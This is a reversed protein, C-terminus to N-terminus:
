PGIGAAGPQWRGAAAEHPAVLGEGSGLGAVILKGHDPDVLHFIDRVVSLATGKRGSSSDGVLVVYLHPAQWAGQHMARGNGCLAGFIALMSGLLAAPDAETSDAVARVLQGLVGHYAAQAMPEPWVTESSALLEPPPDDSINHEVWKLIADVEADDKPPSCRERNLRHIETALNQGTLGVGRLNRAKSMLFDHRGPETIIWGDDEPGRATTQQATRAARSARLAEILEVSATRVTLGNLPQYVAGSPHIGWPGVVQGSGGIRIEGGAFSRPVEAEEVGDPLSLYVHHGKVTKVTLTHPLLPKLREYEAPVDFDVIFLGSGPPPYVGYQRGAPRLMDRIAEPDSSAHKPWEKGLPEKHGVLMPVMQFGTEALSLAAPPRQEAPTM